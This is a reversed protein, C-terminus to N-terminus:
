GAKGNSLTLVCHQSGKTEVVACVGDARQKYVRCVALFDPRANEIIGGALRADHVIGGVRMQRTLIGRVIERPKALGKRQRELRRAPVM